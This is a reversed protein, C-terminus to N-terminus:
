GEPPENTGGLDLAVLSALLEADEDSYGLALAGAIYADLSALGKRVAEELQGLTLARAPEDAALQERRARAEDAQTVEDALLGVLLDLDDGGYGLTAARAAYDDLSALGRKVARALQALSLAPTAAAAEAVERAQRKAQVDAIEQLLLEVDIDIDDDTYGDRALRAAYVDPSIVGLRAARRIASLSLERRGSALAAAERRARAANAEDVKAGLLAVLALQADVTFGQDILFRGYDDLTKAGLVVAREFQDLSLGRNRLAEDARARADRAAADEAIRLQLLDVMAARDAEDYGLDVLQADYQAITRAGRRVLQEVRGLDIARKGAKARAEDRLRKAEDQEAKRDKTTATLLAADEASLGREVLGRQFEDLTLFGRMVADRQDAISLGSQSARFAAAEAREQQALRQQRDGDLLEMLFAVTDADYQAAYVEEVREFPIIGRVAARELKSLPGRRALATRAEIEARRRAAAEDREQQERAREQEQDARHQAIDRQKNIEWRLQLELATVDGEPYGERRAAERYDVMNLVGSKVMAEVQSLSLRRGGLSRRTDGLLAYLARESPVTLAAALMSQMAVRDIRGNAYAAVIANAQQDELQEIRRLGEIRLADLAAQEEYGQDKLHTIGQDRTWHERSVLLRVDSASFFKRQANFIAEIRDASFGQRALEEVGKERPWRGRVVQRAAESASLLRPRYTRNVQWELPTVISADVIPSLVRRTLRDLGLVHSVKDGLKAFNEIKGVDIYPTLSSLVEFLWGRFWDELAMQTVVTLYKSAATDSPELNTVQGKIQEILGRGLADAAATRGGRNGTGGFASADVNTGFLDRVAAAAMDAFAPAVVNEASSMGRALGIGIPATLRMAVGVLTGLGETLLAETGKAVEYEGIRKLMGDVLQAAVEPWQEIKEAVTQEAM